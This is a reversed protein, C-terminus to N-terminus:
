VSLVMKDGFFRHFKEEIINLLFFGSLSFQTKEIIINDENVIYVTPSMDDNKMQKKVIFILLNILFVNYEKVRIILHSVGQIKSWYCNDIAIKLGIFDKLYHTSLVWPELPLKFGKWNYDQVIIENPSEDPIFQWGIVSQFWLKNTNLVVIEEMCYDLTKCKFYQWPLHHFIGPDQSKIKSLNSQHKYIFKQKYYYYNKKSCSWQLLLNEKYGDRPNGQSGEILIPEEILKWWLTTGNYQDDRLTILHDLENDSLVWPFIKKYLSDQAFGSFNNLLQHYQTTTQTYNFIINYSALKERHNKLNDMSFNISLLKVMEMLHNWFYFKQNNNVEYNQHYIKIADINHFYDVTDYKYDKETLHSILIIHGDKYGNNHTLIINDDNIFNNNYFNNYIFFYYKRHDYTEMINKLIAIRSPLHNIDQTQQQYLNFIENRHDSLNEEIYNILSFLNKHSIVIYNDYVEYIYNYEEIFILAPYSNWLKENYKLWPTM